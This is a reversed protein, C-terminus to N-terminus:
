IFRGKIPVSGLIGAARDLDGGATNAPRSVHRTKVRFRGYIFEV